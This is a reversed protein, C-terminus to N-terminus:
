RHLAGHKVLNIEAQAQLVNLRSIYRHLVYNSGRERLTKEDNRKNPDPNCLERIMQAIPEMFEDYEIAEKVEEICKDYCIEIYSRMEHEDGCKTVGIEKLRSILLATMNLGTFYFTMLNGLEYSDMALNHDLWDKPRLFAFESYIELPAYTMDGSFFQQDYLGTGSFTKSRGLDAIKSNAKFQLINSPKLDQHIVQISHLQQIGTAIDHLSKLKWAFDVEDQFAIYDKVNGDAKEFVLFPIPYPNDDQIPIMNADLVRVIKSLSRERCKELLNREYDFAATQEQITAMWKELSVQRLAKEIDIIKVFYEKGEREVKYQVSFQGGTEGHKKEYKKTLMWGGPLTTGTLHHAKTLEVM